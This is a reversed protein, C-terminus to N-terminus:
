PAWSEETRRALDGVVARLDGTKELVRRQRTSGSGRAMLREFSDIVQDLDGSAELQPRVHAVAAEFVERAPVLTGHVPHVLDASV